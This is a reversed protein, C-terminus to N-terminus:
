NSKGRSVKNIDDCLHCQNQSNIQVLVVSLSIVSLLGAIVVVASMVWVLGCKQKGLSCPM